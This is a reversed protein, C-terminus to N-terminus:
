ERVTLVTALSVNRADGPQGGGVSIEFEGPEVFPQGADNYAALQEPKLALTVLKEEGPQLHFRMIGALQRIPVPVSAQIDKVYLQVVEDGARAGTNRVRVSVAISEKADISAQSLELDSYAFTTYSLGYGFPYLPLETM